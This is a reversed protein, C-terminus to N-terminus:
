KVKIVCINAMRKYRINVSKIGQALADAKNIYGSAFMSQVDFDKGSEWDAKVEKASKYDRGYAPSLTLHSM